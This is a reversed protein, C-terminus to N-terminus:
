LECNDILVKRSRYYLVLVILLQIVIYIGCTYYLSFRTLAFSLVLHLISTGFTTLMIEHNKKYYFLYNVVLFYICQIFGYISLLIFYPISESYAPLLLPVMISCGIVVVISIVLFMLAIKKSMKVLKNINQSLNTSDSLIQYIDVSIVNNFSTGVIIIINVLNLAFSFLGVDATTHYADIIYRDLGQRIWIAGMHPILPIGWLLITKFRAWNQNTFDLLNKRRYVFVALLAIAFTCLLQSYVRGQWGQALSIVCYLTIAFNLVAFGCSIFGYNLVMRKIRYYSLIMNMFVTFFSIFLAIVVLNFPISLLKAIFEHFALTILLFLTLVILAILHIATFDKKFENEGKKFYSISEYGTTSMAIFYGIFMVFTNFLSLEGYDEPLIFKALVLLLIFNVGQNFFSFLSFLSANVASKNLKM